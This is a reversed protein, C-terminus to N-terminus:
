ITVEEVPAHWHAVFVKIFSPLVFERHWMHQTLYRGVSEETVEEEMWELEKCAIELTDQKDAPIDSMKLTM